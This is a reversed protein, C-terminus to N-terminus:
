SSVDSEQLRLLRMKTRGSHSFYYARGEQQSLRQKRSWEWTTNLPPWFAFCSNTSGTSWKFCRKRSRTLDCKRCGLLFFIIEYPLEDGHVIAKEVEGLDRKLGDMLYFIVEYPRVVVQFMIKKFDCFDCKPGGLIRFLIRVAKRSRSVNSGRGSGLRIYLRGSPLIHTLLVQRGSSVDSERSRGLRM